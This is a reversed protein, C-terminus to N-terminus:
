EPPKYGCARLIIVLIGALGLLVIGAPPFAFLGILGFLILVTLLLTPGDAQPRKAPDLGSYPESGYVAPQTHCYPCVNGGVSVENKCNVCLM